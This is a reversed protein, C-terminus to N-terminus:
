ASGALLGLSRATQKGLAPLVASTAAAAMEEEEKKGGGGWLDTQRQRKIYM